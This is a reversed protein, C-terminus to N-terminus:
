FHIPYSCYPNLLKKSFCCTKRFARHIHHRLRFNNEEIGVTHKKGILHNEGKFAVVFSNWDDTAISGYSVVSDSLKKRLKRATHLDRKGWVFAVIEGTERHYSYILWVKRSKKVVYTWFEDVELCDYYQQRSRILHLSHVLVSLVKKTSIKEIAAIDRIGVGRVLMRLIKQRLWSHCGKYRLVHDGIFQRGCAKCLYNQQGCSKKGNKKGKYKPLRSL